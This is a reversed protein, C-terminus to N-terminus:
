AVGKLRVCRRPTDAQRRRSLCTKSCVEVQCLVYSPTHTQPRADTGGCAHMYMCVQQWGDLLEMITTVNGMSEYGEVIKMINPHDLQPMFLFLM